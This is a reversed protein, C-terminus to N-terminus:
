LRFDRLFDLPVKVHWERLGLDAARDLKDIIPQLRDLGVRRGPLALRDRVTPGLRFWGLTSSDPLRRIRLSSSSRSSQSRSVLM